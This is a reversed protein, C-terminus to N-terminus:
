SLVEKLKRIGEEINGRRIVVLRGGAALYEAEKRRDTEAIDERDHVSGHLLVAVREEEYWLDAELIHPGGEPVPVHARTPPRVGAVRLADVMAKEERSDFHGMVGEWTAREVVFDLEAELWDRLLPIVLRRDLDDHHWQNYFSRLCDYCSDVCAREDSSGDPLEHLLELATGVVKRWAAPSSIVTRLAGLSGEDTEYILIRRGDERGEPHPYIDGSLEAEDLGYTIGIAGRLAYLLTVAIRQANEGDGTVLDITLADHHGETVLYIPGVRHEEASGCRSDPGYHDDPPSWRGCAECLTFGEDTAVRLGRNVQLIEMQRIYSIPTIAGDETVISGRQASAPYRYFADIRYGQRLREEAEAGVRGSPRAYVDPFDLLTVPPTTTLARGCSPCHNAGIQKDTVYAGCGDSAHPGLGGCFTYSLRTTGAAGSIKAHTVRYQQGKFYISNGPAFERLAITRSRALREQRGEADLLAFAARRPFAYNPLFGEQSLYAYPYYDDSGERMRRMRDEIASRHRELQRTEQQTLHGVQGGLKANIEAREDRLANYDDKFRRWVEVFREPFREVTKEVLDSRIHEEALQDGFVRKGAEVLDPTLQSLRQTWENWFPAKLVDPKDPNREVFDEPHKPLNLTRTLHGLILANLHAVLLTENDLQISPATITGAIIKEPFRFFYQDHPGQKGYSGCFTVVTSAQGSRGARGQRQAYNAPTPPVNRMYVAALSGIDIGLEMTPTCVLVNVPDNDSEFSQEARKRDDGSVQASHEEALIYPRADLSVTYEQRFYDAREPDPRLEVKVCRPCWGITRLRYRGGCRPCRQAAADSPVFGVQLQEINLQHGAGGPGPVLLQVHPHALLRVAENLIAHARERRETKSGDPLVRDRVWRLLTSTSHSGERGAIRRVNLHYSPDLTDSLVTPRSPLEDRNHFLVQPNLQDAVEQQFRKPAMFAGAPGRDSSGALARERRATDLVVQLIDAAVDSPLASLEDFGGHGRAWRAIDELPPYVVELLGIGELTPQIKPTRGSLELVAGFELYRRYRGAGAGAAPGFVAEQGLTFRPLARAAEMADYAASALDAFGFGTKAGDVLTAAATHLARRLHLRRSLANLHAAQFSSDQRNDTFAIVKQESRDDGAAVMQTVLVDTATSRGVAGVLFFKNWESTRGDYTVGCSPCFMLPETVLTAAAVQDHGCDGGVQGCVGCITRTSPTAMERDDRKAGALFDEPLPTDEADWEEPMVYLPLGDHEPLGRFERPVLRDDDLEAVLYEQGCASCFVLPYSAVDEYGDEQCEKCTASGTESLHVVDRRGCKVVPSGQSFFLHVKPTLIGEPGRAGEVKAAVGLLLGAMIEAEATEPDLGPRVATRYEEVLDRLSRVDDWLARELWALTRQRRVQEVGPREDGVMVPGLIGLTEEDTRANMAADLTERDVPEPCLVADPDDPDITVPDGYTATVVHDPDFPEGFLEEAFQATAQNPNARDGSDITASTAVCRLRGATGTREKFRRVLAAMDAGQRGSYVHVEDLVLYRLTPDGEPFPFIQQDRFRVLAYELMKFNTILIDPIGAEGDPGDGRLTLRDIVESDWPGDRGTLDKFDKLAAELDEKLDSTYNCVRLGTGRLRRALDEYQSNALANMPYILLAKVGAVGEQRARYVASVIPIFFTFSKGSGTGTAVAVNRGAVQHAIAESQHRYLDVVPSSPDDPNKRFAELVIPDLEGREVFAQLPEGSAFPKAITVFPERWLLRGLERSQRVWDAITPNKYFQFSDVYRRYTERLEEAVRLPQM